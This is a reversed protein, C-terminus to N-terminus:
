VVVFHFTVDKPGKKDGSKKDEELEGNAAVIFGFINPLQVVFQVAGVAVFVIPFAQCIQNRRQCLGVIQQLMDFLKRTHNVIAHLAFNFHISSSEVLRHGGVFFETRLLDHENGIVDEILPAIFVSFNESLLHLLPKPLTLFPFLIRNAQRYKVLM